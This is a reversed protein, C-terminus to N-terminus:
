RRRILFFISGIVASGIVVAPDIPSEPSPTPWPTPIDLTLSRSPIATTAPAVPTNEHVPEGSSPTLRASFIVREGDGVTVKGTFTEFGKKQVRVNFTGTKKTFYTLGGLGIETNDLWITADSPYIEFYISGGTKEPTPTPSAASPTAVLVLVLLIALGAFLPSQKMGNNGKIIVHIFITGSCKKQCPADPLNERFGKLLM